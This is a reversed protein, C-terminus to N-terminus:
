RLLIKLPYKQTLDVARARINGSKIVSWTLRLVWLYLQGYRLDDMIRIQDNQEQSIETSLRSYHIRTLTWSLPLVYLSEHILTLRKESIILLSKEVKENLYFNLQSKSLYHFFFFHFLFFLLIFLSSYSYSWLFFFFSFVSSSAFSSLLLSSSYSLLFPSFSPSLFFSFFFFLSLSFSSYPSLPSLSPHYIPFPFSHYLLFPLSHYFSFFSNHYSFHNLKIHNFKMLHRM